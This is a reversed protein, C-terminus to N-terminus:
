ADNSPVSFDVKDNRRMWDDLSVVEFATTGRGLFWLPDPKNLPRIAVYRIKTTPTELDGGGGRCTESLGEIVWPVDFACSFGEMPAKYSPIVELGSWVHVSPDWGLLTPALCSWSAVAAIFQQPAQHIDIPTSSLVGSRDFLHIRLYGRRLTFALVHHRDLQETTRRLKGTVDVVTYIHLWLLSEMQEITKSEADSPAPADSAQEQAPPRPGWKKMDVAQELYTFSIGPLLIGDGLEVAPARDYANIWEGRLCFQFRGWSSSKERKRKGHSAVPVTNSRMEDRTPIGTWRSDQYLAERNWFKLSVKLKNWLYLFSNRWSFVWKSM